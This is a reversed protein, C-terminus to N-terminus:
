DEVVDADFSHSFFDGLGGSRIEVEKNYNEHKLIVLTGFDEIIDDRSVGIIDLFYDMSQVNDMDLGDTYDIIRYSCNGNNSFVDDFLQDVNDPIEYISM